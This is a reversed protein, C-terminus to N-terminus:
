SRAALGTIKAKLEAAEPLSGFYVAIEILGDLLENTPVERGAPVDALIQHRIVRAMELYGTTTPTLNLTTKAM